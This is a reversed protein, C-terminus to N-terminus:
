LKGLLKAEILVLLEEKRKYIDQLQGASLSDLFLITEDYGDTDTGPVGVETWTTGDYVLLKGDEYKVNGTIAPISIDYAINGDGIALESGMVHTKVEANVIHNLDIPKNNSM